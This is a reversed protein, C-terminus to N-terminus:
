WRIGYSIALAATITVVDDKSIKLGLVKWYGDGGGGGDGGDGPKQGSTSPASEAFLQRGIM